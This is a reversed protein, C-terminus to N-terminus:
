NPDGGMKLVLSKLREIEALQAERQGNVITKIDATMDTNQRLECRTQEGSESAAKVASKATDAATKAEGKAEEAVQKARATIYLTIAGLLPVVAYVILQLVQMMGPDIPGM